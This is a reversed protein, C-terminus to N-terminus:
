ATLSSITSGWCGSRRAPRSSCTSLPRRWSKALPWARSAQRANSCCCATRSAEAVRLVAGGSGAHSNSFCGPIWANSAYKRGATRAIRTADPVPCRRIAASARGRESSPRGVLGVPPKTVILDLCSGDGRIGDNDWRHFPPCNNAQSIRHPPQHSEFGRRGSDCDPVRGVSSCGGGFLSNYAHRIALFMAALM